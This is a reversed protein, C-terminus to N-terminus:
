KFAGKTIRDVARQWNPKFQREWIRRGDAEAREMFHTAKQGAVARRFNYIIAAVNQAGRWPGAGRRIPRGPWRLYKARKPRIFGRPGIFGPDENFIGTGYNVWRARNPRKSYVSATWGKGSRSPRVSYSMSLALKGSRKPALARMRDRTYEAWARVAEKTPAFLARDDVGYFWRQVRLSRSGPRRAGLGRGGFRIPM